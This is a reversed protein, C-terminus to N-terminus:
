ACGGCAPRHAPLRAAAARGVHAWSLPSCNEPQLRFGVLELDSAEPKLRFSATSGDAAQVDGDDRRGQRERVEISGGSLEVNRRAIPLGLGTGTTKTSFYPEFM